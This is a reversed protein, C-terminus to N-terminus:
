NRHQITLLVCRSGIPKVGARHSLFSKPLSMSRLHDWGSTSGNAVRSADTNGGKRLRDVTPPSRGSSVPTSAGSRMRAEGPNLKWPDNLSSTERDPSRASRITPDQPSANAHPSRNQPSTGTHPSRSRPSEGRNNSRRVSVYGDIDVNEFKSKAKSEPSQRHSCHPWFDCTSPNCPSGCGGTHDRISRGNVLCVNYAQPKQKEGVVCVNYAQGKTARDPKAEPKQLYRSLLLDRAATRSRM